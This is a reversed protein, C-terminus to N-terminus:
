IHDTKVVVVGLTTNILILLPKLINLDTLECYNRGKKQKSDNKKHRKQYCTKKIISYCFSCRNQKGTRATRGAKDDGHGDTLTAHEFYM